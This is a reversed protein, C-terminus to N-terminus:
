SHGEDSGGSDSSLKQYDDDALNALKEGVGGEDDSDREIWRSWNVSIFHLKATTKALRPWWKLSDKKRVVVDFSKPKKTVMTQHDSPSVADFLEVRFAGSKLEVSQETIVVEDASTDPVEIVLSVCVDTQAGKASMIAKVPLPFPPGGWALCM